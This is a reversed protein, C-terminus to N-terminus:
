GKEKNRRERITKRKRKNDGVKRNKKKEKEDKKM